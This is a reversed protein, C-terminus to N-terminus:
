KVAKLKKNYRNDTTLVIYVGSSNISTEVTEGPEIDFTSITAGAVNVIRVEATYNLSSEVVIKKRKSYIDLTGTQESDLDRDNVGKM